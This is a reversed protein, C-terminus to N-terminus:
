RVTTLGGPVIDVRVRAGAELELVEGDIQAPMPDITTFAYERVSPQPGLGGLAARAASLATRLKSRHPILVVEFVGDDPEAGEALTAVKAMEAINAFVLSDFTQTRGDVDIAFPHFRSFARVTTLVERISGKGGRELELAVVPTIGLGIYSHAYRVEDDVTMRLVDLKETTGDVIADLLPRRGVVRRHDNANGAALVAAVADNDSKMVGDVVENYGGDGSVSVILPTGTEEGAIVRAHGAYETPRLEVPLDAAREALGSKLEEAREQADGTSHPNFVVVVRDYSRAM